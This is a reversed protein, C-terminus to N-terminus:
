SVADSIGNMNPIARIDNRINLTIIDCCIEASDIQNIRFFITLLSVIVEIRM